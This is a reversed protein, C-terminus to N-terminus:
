SSQNVVLVGTNYCKVTCRIYGLSAVLLVSLFFLMWCGVFLGETQVGRRGFTSEMYQVKNRVRTQISTSNLPPLDGRGGFSGRSISNKQTHSSYFTAWVTSCTSRWPHRCPTTDTTSQRLKPLKADETHTVPIRSDLHIAMDILKTSLPKDHKTYPIKSLFSQDEWQLWATSLQECCTLVRSNGVARSSGGKLSKLLLINM